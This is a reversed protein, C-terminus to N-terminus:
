QQTEKFTFVYRLVNKSDGVEFLENDRIIQIDGKTNNDGSYGESSILTGHKLVHFHLVSIAPKILILLGLSWLIREKFLAFYSPLDVLLVMLCNLADVDMM